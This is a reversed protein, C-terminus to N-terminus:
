TGSYDTASRTGDPWWYKGSDSTTTSYGGPAVFWTNRRWTNNTSAGGSPWAYLPGWQPKFKTSFVNDTFQVNTMKQKAIAVTYGFGSVLNKTITLDLAEQEQMAIGNTNGESMIVNHDIISNQALGAHQLIGDTHDVDGGTDRADHLYNNRATFTYAAGARSQYMIGNAWGWFESNTVTMKGPNTALQWTGFQSSGNNPVPPATLVGPVFSSYDFTVNQGDIRVNWSSNDDGDFRCGYFTVNSIEPGITFGAPFRKFSYTTNSQLTGTFNTLSGPYGPAATYGTNGPGPWCGGWPDPGGPTNFNSNPCSSSGAASFKVASGGSAGSDTLISANGTRTGAEAEFSTTPTAAQSNVILVTGIGAFVFIGIVMVINRPTKRLKQLFTKM